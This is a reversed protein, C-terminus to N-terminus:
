YRKRLSWATINDPKNRKLESTKVFYAYNGQLTSPSLHLETIDLVKKADADYIFYLQKEIDQEFDVSIRGKYKAIDCFFLRNDKNGSM